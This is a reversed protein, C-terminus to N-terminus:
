KETPKFTTDAVPKNTELKTVTMEGQMSSSMSMPFVYGDDTKKYNSYNSTLEVEQGMANQKSVSRIIYYTKPDVYFTTFRGSKYTLKLKYCETGEVDEKGLLEVTHGKAKYDVLPGQIDLQDAAVKVAEDPMPEPKTQGQMPIYSWGATPTNIVYGSMGMFTIDVRQGVNQVQTLVLPVDNGQINMTMEMRVSKLSNLKDKGGLAEVHKAVIEDATQATAGVTVLSALLVICATRLQKM